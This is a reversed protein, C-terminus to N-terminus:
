AGYFLGNMTDEESKKSSKRRVSQWGQQIRTGEKQGNHVRCLFVFTLTKAPDM